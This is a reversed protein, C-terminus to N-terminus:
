SNNSERAPPLAQTLTNVLNKLESLSMTTPSYEVEISRDEVQAKIKVTRNGTRTSWSQLLEIIKPTVVPLITVVLAGLNVMEGSKAGEPLEVGKLLEASEVDLEQVESLLERTMRDLTEAEEAEDNNLFLTIYIPQDGTSM